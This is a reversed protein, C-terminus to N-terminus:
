RQVYPLYLGNANSKPPRLLRVPMVRPPPHSPFRETQQWRLMIGFVLVALLVISHAHTEISFTRAPIDQGTTIAHVGCRLWQAEIPRRPREATDQRGGTVPVSQTAGGHNHLTHAPAVQQAPPPPAAALALHCHFLCGLPELISLAILLHLATHCVSRLRRWTSAISGAGARQIWRWVSVSVM